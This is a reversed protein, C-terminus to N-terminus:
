NWRHRRKDPTNVFSPHENIDPYRYGPLVTIFVGRGYILELVAREQICPGGDAPYGLFDHGLHIQDRIAPQWDSARMPLLVSWGAAHAHYNRNGLLGRNSHAAELFHLNHHQIKLGFAKIDNNSHVKQMGAMQAHRVANEHQANLRGNGSFTGNEYQIQDIMVEREHKAQDIPAGISSVPCKERRSWAQGVAHDDHCVVEKHFDSEIRRGTLYDCETLM